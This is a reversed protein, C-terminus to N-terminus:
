FRIFTGILINEEDKEKKGYDVMFKVYNYFDVKYNSLFVIGINKLLVM